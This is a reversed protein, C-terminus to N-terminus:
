REKPEHQDKGEMQLAREVLLDVLEGEFEEDLESKLSEVEADVKRVSQLFLLMLQITVSFFVLTFVAFSLNRALRADFDQVLSEVPSVVLHHDTQGIGVLAQLGGAQEGVPEWISIEVPFGGPIDYYIWCQTYLPAAGQLSSPNESGDNPEIFCSGEDWPSYTGNENGKHSGLFRASINYDDAAFDYPFVGLEAIIGSGAAIYTSVSRFESLLEFTLNGLTMTERFTQVGQVLDSPAFVRETVSWIVYTGGGLILAALPIM